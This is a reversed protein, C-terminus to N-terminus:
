AHTLRAMRERSLTLLHEDAGADGIQSVIFHGVDQRGVLFHTRDSTEGFPTQYTGCHDLVDSLVRRGSPSEMVSRWDYQRQQERTREQERAAEVQQPDAANQVLARRRRGM